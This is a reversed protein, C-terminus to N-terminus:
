FFTKFKLTVIMNGRRWIVKDNEWVLDDDHSCSGLTFSDCNSDQVQHHVAVTFLESSELLVLIWLLTKPLKITM